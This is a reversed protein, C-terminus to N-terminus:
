DATLGETSMVTMSESSYDAVVVPMVRGEWSVMGVKGFPDDEFKRLPASAVRVRGFRVLNWLPGGGFHIRFSKTCTYLSTDWSQPLFIIRDAVRVIWCAKQERNMLIGNEPKLSRPAAFDFHAIVRNTPEMIQRRVQEIAKGRAYRYGHAGLLSFVALYAAKLWAVSVYHPDPYTYRAKFSGGSRLVEGLAGPTVRPNRGSIEIFGGGFSAYANQSSFGPVDLRVKQKGRRKERLDEAAAKEVKSANSNCPKCTLCLGLGGANFSQPPVHELTVAEGEDVDSKTFGTLCIPCQNNGLDFLRLRTRRACRM